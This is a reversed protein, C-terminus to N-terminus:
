SNEYAARKNKLSETRKTDGDMDLNTMPANSHLFGGCKPCKNILVDGYRVQDGNAYLMCDSNLEAYLLSERDGTYYYIIEGCGVHRIPRANAPIEAM